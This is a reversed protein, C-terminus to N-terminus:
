AASDKQHQKRAGIAKPSCWRNRVSSGEPVMAEVWLSWGGSVSSNFIKDQLLTFWDGTWCVLVQRCSNLGTTTCHKTISGQQLQCPHEPVVPGPIAKPAKYFCKCCCAGSTCRYQTLMNALNSERHSWIYTSARTEPTQTIGKRRMKGGESKLGLVATIRHTTYM